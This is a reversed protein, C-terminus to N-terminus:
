SNKIWNHEPDEYQVLKKGAGALFFLYSLKYGPAAVVQHYGFPMFTITNDRLLIFENLEKDPSYIREIGWGQPKDVKFYYLEEHLSESPVKDNEHKAPPIGSWNGEPNLTEGIILNVSPSDPGILIRVERKWNEKGIESVKINAPTIIAPETKVDCIAKCIAVLANASKLSFKSKIPIYAGAPLGAFVNEREGISEYLNGDINIDCKGELVILGIENDGSECHIEEANNLKLLSFGKIFKYGKFLEYNNIGNCIAADISFRSM